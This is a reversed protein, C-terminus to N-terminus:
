PSCLSATTVDPPPLEQETFGFPRISDLHEKTGLFKRLEENLADRLAIDDKRFAFAGCGRVPKGDIVPTAFPTAREVEADPGLKQLLGQITLSTGAYADIRGSTLGALASPPDPFVAVRDSPVGLREAYGHEVAGRVVGLRASTHRALDEYSHLALPNGRKVLLAEAICYTPESFAVENCREPTIYMGAAILEFRRAKLGPVLSGFETLVGRVETVGLRALVKRLVEPAEGTVRQGDSYAFPSENAYGVRVERPFGGQTTTAGRESASCGALALGLGLSLASLRASLPM